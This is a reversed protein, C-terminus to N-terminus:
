DKKIEEVAAAEEVLYAMRHRDIESVIYEALWPAKLLGLADPIGFHPEVSLAHITYAAIYEEPSEPAHRVFLPHNAVGKLSEMKKAFLAAEHKFAALEAYSSFVKFTLVEGKPLVVEFTGEKPAYSEILSDLLANERQVSESVKSM